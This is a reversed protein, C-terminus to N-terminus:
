VGVVRVVISTKKTVTFTAGCFCSCLLTNNDLVKIINFHEKKKKLWDEESFPKATSQCGCSMTQGFKKRNIETKEGCECSCVLTKGKDEIIILSHARVGVQLTRNGM